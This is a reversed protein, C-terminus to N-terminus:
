RGIGKYLVGAEIIEDKGLCNKGDIVVKIGNKKLNEGTLEKKFQNHDTAVILAESRALVEELSKVGSKSLVYPDFAVVDAELKNLEQLIEFSPSERTDDIGAKYSIGLLGIKTRKVPMEVKNLENQLLEVAYNPMSNNIKRALKLFDHSFGVTEAKQILYYPDVPICHGGVGCSPWHAMFSFKSSAGKIVDVVDIGLQDFSKAIENIFAINIDRFANEITKTAEAERISKMPNIKADIVREYFEVAKKLGKETMAGVNRPLNSVNWHSDGPNIREPAHALYFDEGLKLGQGELLPLVVEECVGPNITSEVVVLQGKKNNDSITAVASRLPGFDPRYNNDVPTPVCVIVIESDKIVTEDTTAKLKKEEVLTPLMEEVLVDKFPAEGHNVKAVAKKNIDFGYVFYGKNAAVCALPLGVYGIGVITVKEKKM